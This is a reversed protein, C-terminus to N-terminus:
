TVRLSVTMREVGATELAPAIALFQDLAAPKPARTALSDVLDAVEGRQQLPLAKLQEFLAQENNSM